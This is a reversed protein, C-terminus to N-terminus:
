SARVETGTTSCRKGKAKEPSEFRSKADQALEKWAPEPKDSEPITQPNIGCRLLMYRNVPNKPDIQPKV